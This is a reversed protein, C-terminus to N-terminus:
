DPAAPPPDIVSAAIDYSFGARALAALDRARHEARAEPDPRHPDPRHPVPRHPGLGRRRAFVSAARQEADPSAADEDLVSRVIEEPVGKGSLRAAILRRSSGRTRLRRAVAAAYARDDLLGQGALKKVVADIWAGHEAPDGDHAARNREARRELVRRLNLTSSPYRDLYHLAIRELSARTLPKPARRGRPGANPDRRTDTEM